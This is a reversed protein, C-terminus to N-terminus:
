CLGQGTSFGPVGSCGPFSSYWVVFCWQFDRFVGSCGPVAWFAASCVPVSRLTPVALLGPVGFKVTNNEKGMELLFYFTLTVQKSM